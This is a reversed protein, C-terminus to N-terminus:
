ILKMVLEGTTKVKVENSLSSMHRDNLKVVKVSSNIYKTVSTNLDM